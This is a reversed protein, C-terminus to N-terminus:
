NDFLVPLQDPSRFAVGAIESQADPALRLNPLRAFLRAVASRAEQRALHTGLCYHAGFAFALHEHNNPRDIDFSDPNAFHSEDRNASGLATMILSGAPITQGSLEVACTTERSVFQVPAEWRLAEELVDDLRAPNEEVAQRADAHTLLAHLITGTFRYTTEAGAPLLLRLFSLIEEEVLKENDIEASALTSILDGCPKRRREEIVPKLHDVIHKAAAFGAEPDEHVSLLQLAWTHFQHFDDIPVGILNAIVRIPFTFTFQRVLDAQGDNAFEDILSDISDDIVAAARDRVARPSFSPTILRRQHLHDEGDMEIITRGIIVGIGRANAASSFTKADHLIRNVDDYRTILWTQGLESKVFEVPSERRLRAYVSHVDRVPSMMGGGFIKTASRPTLEIETESTKEM